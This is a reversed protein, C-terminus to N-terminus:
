SGDRIERLTKLGPFGAALDQKGISAYYAKEAEALPIHGPREPLRRNNYWDVRTLTAM